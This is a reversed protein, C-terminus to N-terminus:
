YSCDIYLTLFQCIYKHLDMRKHMQTSLLSIFSLSISLLFVPLSSLSQCFSLFFFWSFLSFPLPSLSSLFVLLCFCSFSRCHLSTSSLQVSQLFVSSLCVCFFFVPLSSHSLSFFLVSSFFFSLCISFNYSFLSNIVRPNLSYRFMEM